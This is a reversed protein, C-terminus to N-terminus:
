DANGRYEDEDNRAEDNNDDDDEAGNGDDDEADDMDKDPFVSSMHDQYNEFLENGDCVSKELYNGAFSSTNLGLFFARKFGALSRLSFRNYTVSFLFYSM